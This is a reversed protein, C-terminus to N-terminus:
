MFGRGPWIEFGLDLLRLLIAKTEEDPYDSLSTLWKGSVQKEVKYGRQRLRSILDMYDQSANVMRPELKTALTVADVVTKKQSATLSTTLHELEYTSDELEGNLERSNSNGQNKFSDIQPIDVRDVKLSFKGSQKDVDVPVVETSMRKLKRFAVDRKENTERKHFIKTDVQDLESVLKSRDTAKLHSGISAIAKRVGADDGHRMAIKRTKDIVVIENPEALAIIEVSHTAILVDPGVKKLVGLLRRQVDPHLYVEPEDVVILSASGARFLHTLLQCWIQFGFGVWYLERDVRDETVFMSIEGPGNLEPAQIRMGPWTLEVLKAFRDFDEPYHYWYNRFHRSARHTALSANVTELERLAERHGVPGLVPVVVLEIPFQANFRATDTIAIGNTEPILVCGSDREFYLDLSNGNSIMFSVQSIGEEYNTAVNELSIPLLSEKIRYGNKYAEAICIREPRQRRASRIAVALVRLAGIITSKGSNNVGTLVNIRELSLSFAALAKYHKFSISTIRVPDIAQNM